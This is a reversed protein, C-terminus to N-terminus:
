SVSQTMMSGDGGAAALWTSSGALINYLAAGSWRCVSNLHFFFNYFNNGIIRLWMVPFLIHKDNLFIKSKRM